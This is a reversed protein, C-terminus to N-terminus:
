WVSYGGKRQCIESAEFKLGAELYAASVIKGRRMSKKLAYDATNCGLEIASQILQIAETQDEQYSRKREALYCCVGLGFLGVPLEQEAAKTYWDLADEFGKQAGEGTLRATGILFQAEAIGQEAAQRFWQYAQRVNKIVGDGNYYYRGLEFQALAEGQEAAKRFWSVAQVADEEVAVGLLYYLGMEHQAQKQGQEAAKRFWILAQNCGEIAEEDTTNEKDQLYFMGIAFQADADGQEALAFLEEISQVADMDDEDGAVYTDEEVCPETESIPILGNGVDIKSHVFTDYIEETSLVAGSDLNEGRIIGDILSKRNKTKRAMDPLFHYGEMLKMMLVAIFDEHITGLELYVQGAETMPVRLISALHDQLLVPNANIIKQESLSRRIIDLKRTDELIRRDFQSLVKCIGILPLDTTYVGQEIETVLM